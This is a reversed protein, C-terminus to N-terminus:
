LFQTMDMLKRMTIDIQLKIGYNYHCQDHLVSMSCIVFRMRLSADSFVIFCPVARRNRLYLATGLFVLWHHFGLSGRQLQAYVAIKEIVNNLEQEFHVLLHCPNFTWLKHIM